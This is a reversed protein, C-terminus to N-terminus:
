RLRRQMLTTNWWEGFKYGVDRLVGVKTFGFKEHLKISAENEGGIVAVMQRWEGRGCRAILEGLLAGGIGRGVCDKDVYVSNEVSFRYGTRTRYPTVYAYGAIGGDIEAVVYPMGSALVKDRRELMEAASPAQEEFTFATEEVYYAYIAQVREMDAREAGRVLIEEAGKFEGAGSM